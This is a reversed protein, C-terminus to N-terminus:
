ITYFYYKNEGLRSNPTSLIGQEEALKKAAKVMYLTANMVESVRKSSWHSPLLTLIQIKQARSTDKHHFKEKLQDIMCHLDRADNRDYMENDVDAGLSRKLNVYVKQAKEDVCKDM